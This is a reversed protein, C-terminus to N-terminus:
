AKGCGCAQCKILEGEDATVGVVGAIVYPRGRGEGGDLVASSQARAGHAADQEEVSAERPAGVATPELGPIGVRHCHM